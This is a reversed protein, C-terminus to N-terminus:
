GTLPAFGGYRGSNYVLSQGDGVTIDVVRGIVIGHSHREIIEEVECDIAALAGVLTPAGSLRTTWGAGEYRAEGKIGGIGAFRNAVDQHGSALINVCFHGYRRIVPFTSSARNINVIMTPPDVSLATASTVTAGTRDTGAGATIVSVAGSVARMANKLLAPDVIAGAGYDAGLGNRTLNAMNM